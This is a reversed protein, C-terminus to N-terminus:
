FTIYPAVLKKNLHPLIENIQEYSSFLNKRRYEFICKVDNYDFYPHHLLEKFTINNINIQRFVNLNNTNIHNKLESLAPDKLGYVEDLQDLSHIGGLAERYKIIRSSLVSGIGNIKKLNNTDTTNIDISLKSSPVDHHKKNSQYFHNINLQNENIKHNEAIVHIPISTITAPDNFTNKYIIPLIIIGISIFFLVWTARIEKQSFEIQYKLFNEIKTKM